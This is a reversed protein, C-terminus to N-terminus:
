GFPRLNKGSLFSESYLLCWRAQSCIPSPLSKKLFNGRQLPHWLTRIPKPSSKSRDVFSLSPSPWLWPYAPLTDGYYKAGNVRSNLFVRQIETIPKKLDRKKKRMSHRRELNRALAQPKGWIESENIWFSLLASDPGFFMSFLITAAYFFVLLTVASLVVQGIFRAMVRM